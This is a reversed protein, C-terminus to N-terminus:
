GAKLQNSYLSENLIGLQHEKTPDILYGFGQLANRGLHFSFPENQSPNLVVETVISKAGLTVTSEIVFLNEDHHESNQLAIHKKVPAQSVIRVEDRHPLPNVGFRVWLDGGQRYHEIFSTQLTSSESGTDIIAVLGPIGIDPLRLWERWGSVTTVEPKNM